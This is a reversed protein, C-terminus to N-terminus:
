VSQLVAVLEALDVLRSHEYNGHQDFPDLQAVQMGANLAGIVDAHVTDGIYLTESPDIGLAAFAPAFIAPDPKSVGELTSDVVAAVEPLPGPGVQCVGFDRMQEPASGDNNSVIALPMGTRALRHFQAVNEEHVWDWRTRMAVRLSDRIDVPVNLIEAYAHDYLTWFDASAEETPRDAASLAAVGAHHAVRYATLDDPTSVGLETLRTEVPRYQPYTFVGGIDFVVASVKSPIFTPNASSLSDRRPM